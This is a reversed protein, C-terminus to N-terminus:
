APKSIRVKGKVKAMKIHTTSHAEKPKDQKPSKASGPGIHSIKKVLNPFKETM